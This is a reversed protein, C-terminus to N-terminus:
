AAAQHTTRSDRFARVGAIALVAAVAFILWDILGPTDTV